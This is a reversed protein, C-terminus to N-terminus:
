NYFADPILASRFKVSANFIYLKVKLMGLADDNLICKPREYSFHKVFWVATCRMVFDIDRFANKKQHCTCVRRHIGNLRSFVFHIRNFAEETLYLQRCSKLTENDTENSICMTWEFTMLVFSITKWGFSIFQSTM